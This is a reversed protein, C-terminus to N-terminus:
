PNPSPLLDQLHLEKDKGPLREHSWMARLSFNVPKFSASLGQTAQRSGAGGTGCRGKDGKERTKGWELSWGTGLAPCSMERRWAPGTIGKEEQGGPPPWHLCGNHSLELGGKGLPEIAGGWKGPPEKNRGSGRLVSAQCRVWLM